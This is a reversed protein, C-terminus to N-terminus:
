ETNYYINVAITELLYITDFSLIETDINIVANIARM